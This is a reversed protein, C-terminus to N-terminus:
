RRRTEDPRLAEEFEPMLSSFNVDTGSFKEALAPITERGWKLLQKRREKPLYNPAPINDIFRQIAQRTPAALKALEDTALATSSVFEMAVGSDSSALTATLAEIFAPRTRLRATAAERVPRSGHRTAWRLLEVFDKEPDLASIQGLVEGSSPAPNAMRYAISRVGGVGLRFMRHGAFVVCAVLSLAAFLAWSWRLWQTPLGPALKPNLSLVVLLVTSLPVLYIVPTYLIRPTFGPRIYLAIFVFSVVALALAAAVALVYLAARVLRLWDFGGTAAVCLLAGMLLLWLPVLIFLVSTTWENHNVHKRAYDSLLSQLPFLFVITALGACLNGIIQPLASPNM